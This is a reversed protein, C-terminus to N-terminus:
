EKSSLAYLYLIGVVSNRSRLLRSPSESAASERPPRAPRGGRGGRSLTPRGVEEDAARGPRGGRGGRHAAPSRTLPLRACSFTPRGGHPDALRRTRRAARGAEEEAADRPRIEGLLSRSAEKDAALFRRSRPATPRGHPAASSSGPWAVRRILLPRPPRCRPKSENEFRLM